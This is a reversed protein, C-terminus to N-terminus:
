KIIGARHQWQRKIVEDLYEGEEMDDRFEEGAFEDPINEKEADEAYRREDGTMDLAQTATIIDADYLALYVEDMITSQEPHSSVIEIFEEVNGGSRAFQYFLKPFLEDASMEGTENYTDLQQLIYDKNM